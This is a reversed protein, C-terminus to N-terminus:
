MTEWQISGGSSATLPVVTYGNGNSANQVIYPKYESSSDKIMVIQGAYTDKSSNLDRNASVVDNFLRNRSRITQQKLDETIYVIESTDSTVVFDSDNITRNVIAEGINSKKGYALKAINKEEAM